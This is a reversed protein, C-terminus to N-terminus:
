CWPAGEIVESVNSKARSSAGPEGAGAGFHVPSALYLKTPPLLSGSWTGTSPSISAM